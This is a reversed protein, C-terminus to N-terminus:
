QAALHANVLGNGFTQDYGATGLDTATGEIRARVQAASWTPHVQRVLAAIAAVHPTAM